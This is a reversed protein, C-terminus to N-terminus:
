MTDGPKHHIRMTAKTIRAWRRNKKCFQTYMYQTRNDAYCKECYEQQIITLNVGLKALEAHIYQYDPEEYVIGSKGRDPFLLDKLMANTVCEDLLWHVVKAKAASLADDITHYSCHLVLEINSKSFVSDADMRLIEHYNVM